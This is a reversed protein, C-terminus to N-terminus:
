SPPQTGYREVFLSAFREPTVRQSRPKDANATWAERIVEDTVQTLHMTEAVIGKWDSASTRLAAKLKPAVSAVIAEQEPPLRDIVSLVYSAFFVDMPRWM